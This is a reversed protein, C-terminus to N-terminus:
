YVTAGPADALVLVGRATIKEACTISCNFRCLHGFLRDLVADIVLLDGPVVLHEVDFSEVAALTKLAPVDPEAPQLACGAAEACAEVLLGTPFCRGTYGSSFTYLPQHVTINLCARCSAGPQRDLVRDLFRFPYRHPLEPMM